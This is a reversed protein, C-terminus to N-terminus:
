SILKSEVCLLHVIQSGYEINQMAWEIEDIMIGIKMLEDGYSLQRGQNVSYLKDADLGALKLYKWGCNVSLNLRYYGVLAENRDESIVMWSATDNSFPNDM